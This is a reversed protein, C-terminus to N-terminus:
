LSKWVLILIVVVAIVGLVLAGDSALFRDVGGSPVSKAQASFFLLGPDLSPM